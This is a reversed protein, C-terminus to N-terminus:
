WLAIPKNYESTYNFWRKKRKKRLYIPYYFYHRNKLSGLYDIQM